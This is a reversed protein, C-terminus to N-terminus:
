SNLFFCASFNKFSPAFSFAKTKKLPREITNLSCPCIKNSRKACSKSSSPFTSCSGFNSPFRMVMNMLGLFGFYALVIILYLAIGFIFVLDEALFRKLSVPLPLILRLCAKLLWMKVLFDFFRLSLNVCEPNTCSLSASLM